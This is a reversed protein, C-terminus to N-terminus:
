SIYKAFNAAAQRAHEPTKIVSTGHETFLTNDDGYDSIFLMDGQQFCSTARHSWGCYDNTFRVRAVNAVGTTVDLDSNQFECLNARVYYYADEISGIYFRGHENTAYVEYISFIPEDNETKFYDRDISYVDKRDIDKFDDDYLKEEIHFEPHGEITEIVGQRYIDKGLDLFKPIWSRLCFEMGFFNYGTNNKHTNGAFWCFHGWSIYPIGKYILDKCLM